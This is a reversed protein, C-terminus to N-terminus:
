LPEEAILGMAEKHTCPLELHILWAIGYDDLQGDTTERFYAALKLANSVSAPLYGDDDRDLEPFPVRTSKPTESM